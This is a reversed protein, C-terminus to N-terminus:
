KRSTVPEEVAERTLEDLVARLEQLRPPKSMVCDVDQPHDKDDIMRQGWGTLMIIPTRPERQRLAAAVKRGDMEPMGLDTIVIDFAGETGAAAAFRNVGKRGGDARSVVHGEQSLIDAISSLFMPDDDIVLIRLSRGSRGAANAGSPPADDMELPAFRLAVTTGVHRESEIQLEAGHRQAMGYVMALGLGTGREGKTTFFPELCRRRTEADMGVGTDAVELVAQARLGGSEGPAEPLHRTRITVTGGSPMADVANFILNTLSDRIEGQEGALVPSEGDLDLNLVIVVGREQPIDHWRPRTLEVVERVTANLDVKSLERRDDRPRYFERMRAVTKAVDTIAFRISNLAARSRESLQKEHEVLSDAYLAAPSIANNIDHAIGSAMQGLARLREQQLITQQSQRLEDYAQQLSANLQVQHAALAVHDCLQRLFECQVSSFADTNIRAVLFVGMVRSDLILPAVALSGLGAAAMRRTFELDPRSLDPEYVFSGVLAKSLGNGGIDVLSGEDLGVIAARARSKAGVQQVRLAKGEAECLAVCVLDAPLQNEVTRMVVQYISSLDQRQAIARTVEDLLRLQGLQVELRRANAQIRANLSANDAAVAAQAAIGEAIRESREGFVGPEPHGFFLGGIVEGERAVVPVALFSRVPLHGDPMGRHPANKGYRPDVLVDEIRTPGDGRFTPAFLETNRPNGFKEFDERRAGSLTYLLYKEGQENMANHFFAGFRAGTLRTAADTVHQVVAQFDHESALRRAVAYLSEIEDRSEQERVLLADREEQARKRETINTSIGFTGYAHGDEDRLAAKASLFYELGEPLPLVEEAYIPQDASVARADMARFASAADNEFMDFDTKGLVQAPKVDMLQNFQRNVLLYRGDLDKAYIVAPSNDVITQLLRGDRMGQSDLSRATHWFVVSLLASLSVVFVAMGATLPIWGASVGLTAVTGLIAPLLIVAPLFRRVFLARRDM